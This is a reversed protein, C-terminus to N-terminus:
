LGYLRELGVLLLGDGRRTAEARLEDAFGHVSFLGLVAGGADYGATGLVERLHELRELEALGPRRDRCKAEAIFAV